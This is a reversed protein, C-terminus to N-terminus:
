SCRTRGNGRVLAVCLQGDLDLVISARQRRIPRIAVVQRPASRPSCAVAVGSLLSGDVGGSSVAMKVLHVPCASHLGAAASSPTTAGVKQASTVPIGPPRQWGHESHWAPARAVAAVATRAASGRRGGGEAVSARRRSGGGSM